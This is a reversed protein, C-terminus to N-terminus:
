MSSLNTSYLLSGRSAILFHGKVRERELTTQTMNFQSLLTEYSWIPCLAEFIESPTEYCRCRCLPRPRGIRCAGVISGSCLLTTEYCQYCGGSEAPPPERCSSSSAAVITGRCSGWDQQEGGGAEVEGGAEGAKKWGFGAKVRWIYECACCQM